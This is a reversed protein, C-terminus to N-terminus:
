EYLEKHKKIALQAAEIINLASVGVYVTGNSIYTSILDVSLEYTESVSILRGNYFSTVYARRKPLLEKARHIADHIDDADLRVTTISGSVPSTSHTVGSSVYQSLCPESITPIGNVFKTYYKKMGPMFMGVCQKQKM